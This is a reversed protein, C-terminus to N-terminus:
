NGGGSASASPGATGTLEVIKRDIVEEDDTKVLKGEVAAGCDMQLQHYTINGSVRANPQLEVFHGVSLDGIITGNVVADYTSVNGEICGRDSLVLLGREDGRNIVNGQVRGDVRLGGKFVVDGVVEVNDAILSSLKKIQIAKNKKKGFM